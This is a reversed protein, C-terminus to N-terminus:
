RLQAVRGGGSTATPLARALHAVTRDVAEAAGATHDLVVGLALLTEQHQRAADRRIAVTAVAVAAVLVAAISGVAWALHAVTVGHDHWTIAAWALSVWVMTVATATAVATRTPVPDQTHEREIASEIASHIPSDPM